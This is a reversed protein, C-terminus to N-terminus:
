QWSTVVCQTRAFAHAAPGSAGSRAVLKTQGDATGRYIISYLVPGSVFEGSLPRSALELPIIFAHM